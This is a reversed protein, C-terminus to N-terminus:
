VNVSGVSSREELARRCAPLNSNSIERDWARRYLKDRVRWAGLTTCIQSPSDILLTCRAAQPLSRGKGQGVSSAMDCVTSVSNLGRSPLHVDHRQVQVVSSHRSM